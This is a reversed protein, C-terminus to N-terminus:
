EKWFQASIDNAEEETLANGSKILFLYRFTISSKALLKFNAITETSNFVHQGFNNLAFLGYGRAHAHAPYGPNGPHDFFALSILSEKVKATLSVWKNRTGWVSDGAFGSSSKYLGNVGSNDIVAVKNPKGNVDIFILPENVPAEFARNVRLAILGEKNDGFTITENGATLKSIRRIFRMNENGSFLFVTEEKLLVNGDYDIWDLSVVLKGISSNISIESIDKHVIRGYKKKEKEPIAYSNNWFDLGSVDGFSFWLGVQHPHDVREGAQPSLPFGRTITTGNAANLPYLIPKEITSNFVYSTFYKGGIFINVKYASDNRIIKVPLYNSTQTFSNLDLLM